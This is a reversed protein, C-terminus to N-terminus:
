RVMNSSTMCVMLFFFDLFYLSLKVNHKGAFAFFMGAPRLLYDRGKGFAGLLCLSGLTMFALSFIAIAAASINYESPLFDCLSDSHPDFCSWAAKHSRISNNSNFEEKLAYRWNHMWTHRLIRERESCEIRCVEWLIKGIGSHLRKLHVLTLGHDRMNAGLIRYICGEFTARSKYISM